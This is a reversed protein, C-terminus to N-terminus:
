IGNLKRITLVISSYDSESLGQNMGATFLTLVAATAPLSIKHATAENQVLALDKRIM